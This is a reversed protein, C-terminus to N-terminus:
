AYTAKKADNAISVPGQLATGLVIFTASSGSRQLGPNAVSDGRGGEDAVKALCQLTYRYFSISVLEQHWKNTRWMVALTVQVIDVSGSLLHLSVVGLESSGGLLYCPM